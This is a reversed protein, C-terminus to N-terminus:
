HELCLVTDSRYVVSYRAVRPESGARIAERHLQVVKWRFAVKRLRSSRLYTCETDEIALISFQHPFKSEIHIFKLQVNLQKNLGAGEGAIGRAHLAGVMCINIMPTTPANSKALVKRMTEAIPPLDIFDYQAHRSLDESSLDTIGEDLELAQYRTSLLVPELSPDQSTNLVWRPTPRSDAPPEVVFSYPLRDREVRRRAEGLMTGYIRAPQFGQLATRDGRHLAIRSRCYYTSKRCYLYDMTKENWDQHEHRELQLLYV